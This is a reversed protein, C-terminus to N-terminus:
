ISSFLGIQYLIQIELPNFSIVRRTCLCIAWEARANREVNAKAEKKKSETVDRARGIKIRLMEVTDGASQCVNDCFPFNECRNFGFFFLFSGNENNFIQNRILMLHIQCARCGFMGVSAIM